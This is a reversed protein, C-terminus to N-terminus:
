TAPWIWLHAITVFVAGIAFQILILPWIFRVWTGYGIRAMALAALLLGSTPAFINTIGDGFQFALVSTQRSVDLLDALPTMLPMTLAAQGSGSTVIFNFLGQVALMGLAAAASGLGAVAETIGFLITDIVSADTLVVVTAYAFGICLAGTVLDKCGDAFAEFSGIFGMGSVFGMLLAMALFLAAIEAMFWGQQTVGWVLAGMAALLIGLVIKQRTDLGAEVHEGDDEARRAADLERTLSTSPDRRVRLAYWYVYSIGVALFLVFMVIRPGMGSFLPVEAIGQAVGITFPNTIAATFGCSLGVLVMAAGTVSDMGLRVAIPTLLLVFPLGEEFMGFTAAALAFATMIVPILLLESGNMRRALGTIGAEVADTRSLVGFSGGVVFVFFVIPAAEVMGHYVATFLAGVGAPEGAVHQYTGDVVVERGDLETREYEGPRLLWTAAAAVTLVGFLIAFPHLGTRVHQSAPADQTTASM